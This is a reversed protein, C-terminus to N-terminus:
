TRKPMANTSVAARSTALNIIAFTSLLNKFRKFAESFM